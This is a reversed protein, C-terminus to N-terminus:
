SSFQRVAERTVELATEIEDPTNYFHPSFRITGHRVAAAIQAQAFAEIIKKQNVAPPLRITVIGAHDHAATPTILTAGDINQLGDILIRSLALIHSEINTIGHECLTMLAATAGWIGPMNLSGGEFRRATSSPAQTLDYFDWPDEVALWGLYQQQMRAQLEASVYLMAVGHPAMQWKQCGASLADINMAQVDIQVAGVAQIADVVFVIGRQRCIHGISRLDARFGTQFQVASLAVVRTKPSLADEVMEPTIRGDVNQLFDTEVGFRKLHLYPYVNAPFEMDNLLVRDGTKWPLASAILNIGDSTNLLFAIRDHSEANILQRAAKKCEVVKKIDLTYSDIMGSSRERFHDSLTELVRTSLPGTGAHNLYIKGQSTHPYLSRAATLTDRHLLREAM